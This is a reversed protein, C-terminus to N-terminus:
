KLEVQLPFTQQIVNVGRKASVKLEWPGQMAAVASAEYDGNGKSGFDLEQKGHDMGSMTLVGHLAADSVPNGAPDSVQIRITFPKEEVVKRPDTSLTMQMPSQTAKAAARAEGAPSPKLEGTSKCGAFLLMSITSLVLLLRTSSRM